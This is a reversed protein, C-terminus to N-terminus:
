VSFLRFASRINALGAALMEPAVGFGLRFHRADEFFTGPVVSTDYRERLIGALADGTLAGTTRPFGVIGAAPEVWELGKETEIFEGVMKLNREFLPANRIKISDLLPFARASIQEGIFVPEVFLHDVLRRMKAALSAPALLWGCRLGSLGFVKTLSSGVFINEALGFSTAAEGPMFELYIEDIFLMAGASRAESALEVIRERSLFAGTPNHTNTLIVLKPKLSLATRFERSDIQYRNEFRREIRLVEAGVARPCALLPDYAPKEVLVRDGRDLLAACAFFIGQSAGTTPVVNEPKAGYRAAIAELLPAYGYPNPGNIDLGELSLGLGKLSQDAVGSRSLNVAARSKLKAWEMYEIPQFDM